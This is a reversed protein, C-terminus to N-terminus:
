PSTRSAPLFLGQKAMWKPQACETCREALMWAPKIETKLVPYGGSRGQVYIRYLGPGVWEWVRVKVKWDSTPYGKSEIWVFQNLKRDYIQFDVRMIIGFPQLIIEKEHVIDSIEGNGELIKLLAFTDAQLKSPFNRGGFETRKAGYKHFGTEHIETGDSFKALKRPQSFRKRQPKLIIAM